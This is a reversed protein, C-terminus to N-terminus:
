GRKYWLKNRFTIIINNQSADFSYLRDRMIHGYESACIENKEVFHIFIARVPLIFVRGFIKPHQM